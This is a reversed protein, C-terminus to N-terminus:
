SILVVIIIGKGYTKGIGRNRGKKEKADNIEKQLNQMDKEYQIMKAQSSSFM